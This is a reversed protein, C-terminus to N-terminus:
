EELLVCEPCNTEFESGDPETMIYRIYILHGGKVTAAKVRMQTKSKGKALLQKMRTLFSELSHKLTTEEGDFKTTDDAYTLLKTAVATQYAISDNRALDVLECDGGCTFPEAISKVKDAISPLTPADIPKSFKTDWTSKGVLGPMNEVYKKAAEESKGALDTLYGTVQPGTRFRIARIGKIQASPNGFSDGDNTEIIMETNERVAQLVVLGNVHILGYDAVGLRTVKGDAVMNENHSFMFNRCGCLFFAVVFCILFKQM